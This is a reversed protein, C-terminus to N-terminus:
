RFSNNTLGREMQLKELREDLQGGRKKTPIGTHKMNPQQNPQSSPVNSGDSGIFQYCYSMPAPSDNLFSYSDSWRDSMEVPNFSNIDGSEQKPMVQERNPANSISQVVNPKITNNSNIFMEIGAGYILPRGKIYVSPVTTVIPPIKNNNDVCIKIYLDLQNNSKLKNWLNVSNKDNRSYFLIPKSNM